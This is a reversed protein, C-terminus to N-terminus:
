WTRSELPCRAGETMRGVESAILRLRSPRPAPGSSTGTPVEIVRRERTDGCSMLHRVREVDM